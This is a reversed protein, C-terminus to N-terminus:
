LLCHDFFWVEALQPTVLPGLSSPQLTPLSPSSKVLIIKQYFKRPNQSKNPLSKHNTITKNTNKKKQQANEDPTGFALYKANLVGFGLFWNEDLIGFILVKPVSSCYRRLYSISHVDIGFFIQSIKNVKREGGLVYREKRRCCMERERDPERM